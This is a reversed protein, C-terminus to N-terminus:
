NVLLIARTFVEVSGRTIMEGSEIIVNGARVKGAAVFRVECHVVGEIGAIAPIQQDPPKLLSVVDDKYLSEGFSRGRLLDNLRTEAEARISAEEYNPKLTLWVQVAVPVLAVSGDVARASVELLKLSALRQEVSDLLAQSPAAYFGERDKTLCLVQVVNSASNLAFLSSIHESLLGEYRGTEPDVATNVWALLAVQLGSIDDQITTFGDLIEQLAVVEAAVQAQIVVM